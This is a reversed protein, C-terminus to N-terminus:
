EDIIFARYRARIQKLLAFRRQLDVYKEEDSQMITLARRIHEDSWPEDGLDDLAQVAEPPYWHRVIAPCRVLLLDGVMVQVDDFDHAEEQAKLHRLLDQCGSHVTYLDNLVEVQLENSVRQMGNPPESDLALSLPHRDYKENADRHTFPRTPNLCYAVKALMLVLRGDNPNHIRNQLRLAADSADKMLKAKTDEESKRTFVSSWTKLGSPWNALTNARPFHGGKLIVPAAEKLQAHSAAAAVVQYLWQLQEMPATPLTERALHALQNFRTNTTAVQAPAVIIPHHELFAEVWENLISHVDQVVPEILHQCEQLIMDEILHVDPASDGDWPLGVRISRSRLRRKSEEVFLSSELLGELVTQASAQGGLRIALRNRAAIFADASQLMGAEIADRANRIRWAANLAQSRLLPAKEEPLQERSVHIAVLDIHPSLIESLFADITSISSSELLSMLMSVDGQHRLRPDHMGMRDDDKVPHARLSQIRQRIRSRLESAAKRTFTIAVIEQPLLGKWENLPTRDKKAALVHGAGYRELRLPPPLVHTARQEASLLHQVYREAMVTTKGTGAGADLAIHQDLNLGLRQSRNFSIM